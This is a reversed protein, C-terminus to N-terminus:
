LNLSPRILNLTQHEIDTREVGFIPHETRTSNGISSCTQIWKLINYFIHELDNSTKYILTQGM